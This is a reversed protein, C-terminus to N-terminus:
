QFAKSHSSQQTKMKIKITALSSLFRIQLELNELVKRSQTGDWMLLLIDDVTPVLTVRGCLAIIFGAPELDSKTKTTKAKHQMRPNEDLSKATMRKSDIMWSNSGHYNFDKFVAPNKSYSLSHIQTKRIQKIVPSIGQLNNEFITFIDFILSLHCFHM